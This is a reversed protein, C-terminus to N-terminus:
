MSVGRTGRSQGGLRWGFADEGPALHFIRIPFFSPLPFKVSKPQKLFKWYEGTITEYMNYTKM